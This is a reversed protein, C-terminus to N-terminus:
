EPRIRIDGGSTRLVIKPGGGNVTGALKSKGVGGSALTLTLGSADVRGGSTGADLSFAASKPLTIQV